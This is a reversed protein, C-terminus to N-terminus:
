CGIIHVERDYLHRETLNARPKQLTPSTHVWHLNHGDRPLSFMIQSLVAQSVSIHSKRISVRLGVSPKPLSAPHPVSNLVLEFYLEFCILELLHSVSRSTLWLHTNNLDLHDEILNQPTLEEGKDLFRCRFRKQFCESWWRLLENM